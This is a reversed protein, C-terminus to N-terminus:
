RNPSFREAHFAPNNRKTNDHKRGNQKLLLVPQSFLFFGRMFRPKKDPYSLIM